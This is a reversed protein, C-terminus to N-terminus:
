KKTAIYAKRLTNRINQLVDTGVGVFVYSNIFSNEEKPHKESKFCRATTIGIKEGNEGIAKTYLISLEGV